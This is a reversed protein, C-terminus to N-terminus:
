QTGAVLLSTLSHLFCLYSMCYALLIHHYMLLAPPPSGVTCHYIFMINSTNWYLLLLPNFLAVCQIPLFVLM